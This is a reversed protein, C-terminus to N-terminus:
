AKDSLYLKTMLKQAEKTIRMERNISTFNGITIMTTAFTFWKKEMYKKYPECYKSPILYKHVKFWGILDQENIEYGIQNSLQEAFKKVTISDNHLGIM